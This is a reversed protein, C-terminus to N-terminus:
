AKESTSHTPHQSSRCGVPPKPTKRPLLRIEHPQLFYYVTARDLVFASYLAKALAETSTLHNCARKNSSPIGIELERTRHHSLM